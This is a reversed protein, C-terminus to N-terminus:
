KSNQIESRFPAFHSTHIRIGEFDLLEEFSSISRISTLTSVINAQNSVHFFRLTSSSNIFSLLVPSM